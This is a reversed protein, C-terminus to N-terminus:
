KPAPPPYWERGEPKVQPKMGSNMEENYASFQQRQQAHRAQLEAGNVSSEFGGAAAFEKREEAHRAELERQTIGPAIEMNARFEEFKKREAAHKADLEEQTFGPVVERRQPRSRQVVVKKQNLLQTAAPGAAPKATKETKSQPNSGSGCGSLLAIMLGFGVLILFGSWVCKKPPMAKKDRYPFLNIM